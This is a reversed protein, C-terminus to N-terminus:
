TRVCLLHGMSVSESKRMTADAAPMKAHYRNLHNDSTVVVKLAGTM